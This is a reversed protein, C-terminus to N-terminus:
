KSDKFPLNIPTHAGNNLFGFLKTYDLSKNSMWVEYLEDVSGNEDRNLFENQVRNVPINVIKSNIYSVCGDPLAFKRPITQMESEFQNPNRFNLHSFWSEADSRRFVHGDVSFPYGWDHDAGKWPWLFFGSNISGNPVVQRSRTPYCYTLHTGLRLSFTLFNPNSQLIQCPEDFNIKDKVVIDDVFFVCFKQGLKLYTKVQSEFNQEEIFKVDKHLNKVKILGEEYKKDYRHLVSIDKLNSHEELSELLCNLQLPRNRSFILADIM